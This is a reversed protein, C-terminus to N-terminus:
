QQEDHESKHLETVIDSFEKFTVEKRNLHLKEMLLDRLKEDFLQDHIKGVEEENQMVNDAFKDLQARMEESPPIGKMYQGTFWDKIHSRIDEEAIRLDHEKSIRNIILQQKLSRAYKTYDKEVEETTLGDETQTLWKKVFEDPLSIETTDILKEMASHAFFHDSERQYYEKIESALKKRFEETTEINGDPYVKNFLDSNLEAPQLRRIDSVAFRFDSDIEKVQDTKVSLLSAVEHENDMAKVPNFDITEGRKCKLFRGRVQEDKIYRPMISTELSIGDAKPNASDDLEEIKGKVVDDEAVDNAEIFTGAKGRISDQQEDIEKEEVKIEFYDVSTNENVELNFDPVLGIDFFFTFDKQTAFDVPKNKEKNEIPHGLINLENEKIFSYVSESLVKNIEEAVLTNGHMKRVLGLPVKGPRFGKLETKKQIEKLSREVGERYDEPKIEIKLTATHQGTDEKTINM